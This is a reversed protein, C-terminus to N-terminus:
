SSASTPRRWAAPTRSGRSTPSRSILAPSIALPEIAGLKRCSALFLVWCGNARLWTGFNRSSEQREMGKAKIVPLAAPSTLFKIVERATSGEKAGSSVGAVMVIYSQVSSPFPAMVEIGKVPLIESVPLVGFESEGRVVSESVEEGTATLKSKSKLDDTIGLRQILATFAVGSAGEKAYVISKANLLASKFDDTTSIDTKRAGSRIAIALGVRAVTTRTEAAIKGAKIADDMTQPTLIALDFPEGAEIQRELAAALGYTVVLKHTTAREFQPALEEVVAKIGNSCLVKIEAANAVGAQALMLLGLGVALPIIRRRKM